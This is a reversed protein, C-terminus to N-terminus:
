GGNMFKKNGKLNSFFIIKKLLTNSQLFIASKFPGGLLSCSLASRQIRNTQFQRWSFRRDEVGSFKARSSNRLFFASPIRKEFFKLKIKKKAWHIKSLLIKQSFNENNKWHVCKRRLFSLEFVKWRWEMRTHKSFESYSSLIIKPSNLKWLFKLPVNKAPFVHSFFIKRFYFSHLHTSL